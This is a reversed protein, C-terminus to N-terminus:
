VNGNRLAYLLDSLSEQLITKAGNKNQKLTQISTESLRFCIKNKATLTLNKLYSSNVLLGPTLINEKLYCKM